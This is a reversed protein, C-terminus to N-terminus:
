TTPSPPSPPAPLAQQAGDRIYKLLLFATTNGKVQGRVYRGYFVEYLDTVTNIALKVKMDSVEKLVPELAKVLAGPAYDDGVLFQDLVTVALQVYRANGPKDEIAVLAAGRAASRLVIAADQLTQDSVQGNPTQCGTTFTLPAAVLTLLALTAALTKLKKMLMQTTTGRVAM